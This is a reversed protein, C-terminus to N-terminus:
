QKLIVPLYIFKKGATVYISFQKEIFLGHNDTSRVRISYSNKTEYDFVASTRLQTGLINFSANDTSGTGSVLRYTFTSGPEPDISSFVGVVTNVPQDEKVINNSLQIDTPPAIVLITFAKEYISGLSGSARVRISYTNKTEYDFVAATRLENSNAIAFSNNDADGSGSVLSYTFTEGPDPDSTSFVGVFTGAPRDESIERNSLQIGTVTLSVVARSCYGQGTQAYYGFSDPGTYGIDPVYRIVSGVVSVTGHPPDEPWVISLNGYGTTDNSLVPLDVPTNEATFYNNDNVGIQVGVGFFGEAAFAGGTYATDVAQVSWYYDGFPIKLFTDSRSQTNGPKALQRLGSSAASPNVINALGPATGVRLNYTIGGPMTTQSDTAPNWDLYVRSDGDWCGRVLAPAGPPTNTITPINRYVFTSITTDNDEVGTVVLDLSNDNDLHGWAVAAGTGSRLGGLADTFTGGGANLYIRTLHQVTTLGNLALDLDGDNDYDGWATSSQWVGPLTTTIQTFAGDNRYLRTIPIYSSSTGGNGTILLDLDGDNELDFWDASGSWVGGPSYTTSFGGNGNNSFVRALATADEERESTRGIIVFDLDEDANYDGFQVSCDGVGPVNIEVLETLTGGDNRYLAGFGSGGSAYGCILLDPDGDNDYDGWDGSSRYLGALEQRLIFSGSGNNTYVRAMGTKQGGIVGTQGTIFLDLDGDLDVDGLALSGFETGPIAAAVKVLIGAANQLIFTETGTNNRGTMMLDLDGDNDLDGWVTAGDLAGEPVTQQLAVAVLPEDQQSALTFGTNFPLTVLVVLCSLIWRLWNQPAAPKAALVVAHLRTM